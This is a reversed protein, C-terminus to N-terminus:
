IEETFVMCDKLLDEEHLLECVPYQFTTWGTYPEPIEWQMLKGDQTVTYLRRSYNSFAVISHSGPPLSITCFSKTEEGVFMGTVSGFGFVRPQKHRAIEQRIDFIHTTGNTSSVALLTNDKNFSISSIDASTTGRRFSYQVEPGEPTDRVVPTIRILTGCESATAVHDGTCNYQIM